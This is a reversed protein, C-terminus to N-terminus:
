EWQVTYRPMVDIAIDKVKALSAKLERSPGTWRDFFQKVKLGDGDGELIVLEGALKSIGDRITGFDISWTQGTSDYRVSGHHMLYNLEMWAGRGHAEDLGFRLSRFMSGLFSVYFQQANAPDVVKRDMLFALSHLGAIDAKAEELASYDPGIAANVAMGKKPGVRVTRPGVAHCIEHMLVFQFFGDESLYRQQSSDILRISVPKIITNFRAAFMNKWFTKKSGKKEHVVPDNPLNTAVAQYGYAAEGKRIIDRVITFKATLGKVDSKYQKPVPLNAEFDRLYRTYLELKKSEEQDVVEVSAEFKAKVGKIGDSYTEFPGFVIDFANGDMDIWAVDAEFYDDTQIAKAKLRLFRAFSADDSLDACENLLRAIRDIQAKYEEHYWAARYGGASDKKIVTYPSMFMEREAPSLTATYDDFQQVTMGRPYIEDGPYYPVNGIFSHYQNLQEYPGANREILTLLKRTLETQPAHRLSDRLQMGYKSTQLWYVTDLIESAQVLKQLITRDKEGYSSADFRMEYPTYQALYADLDPQHESQPEDHQSCSALLVTFCVALVVLRHVTM